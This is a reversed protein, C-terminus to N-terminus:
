SSQKPADCETCRKYGRKLATSLSIKEANQMGSCNKDAHYRTGTLTVYVDPDSDPKPTATPKPTASPKATASSIPKPANCKTCRTYNRKLAMALSIKEANKMGSCTSKAHYKNGSMTVYVYTTKNTKETNDSESNEKMCVPCAKQGRKKAAAVTTKEANKMGSCTRTKHYYKGNATAYVTTSTKACVPCATKGAEKAKEVTGTQANKMGSCTKVTHYYKGGSTYYVKTTTSDSDSGGMCTPCATQGRKKAVSALILKANKMGSCTSNKHYYKGGSTAYVMSDNGICTPCPTQGRKKATALTIKSAGKMGSCTSTKHFYKGNKTSYYKANPNTTAKPKTPSKKNGSMCVPCATQGRKKAASLAIKTAGKMGSCSSTKHYYKGNTTAFVMTETEVTVTPEINGSDGTQSALPTPSPTGVPSSTGLPTPSPAVPTASVTPTATAAPAISAAPTASTQPPLTINDLVNGAPQNGGGFIGSFIWVVLIICWIGSAASVIGRMMFELRNSRWLLYIGLPPLLILLVWMVWESEYWASYRNYDRDEPEYDDYPQDMPQDYYAEDDYYSEQRRRSESRSPRTQGKFPLRYIKDGWKAAIGRSSFNVRLNGIQFTKGSRSAM